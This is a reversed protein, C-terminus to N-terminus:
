TGVIDVLYQLSHRNFFLGFQHNATSVIEKSRSGDHATFGVKHCTSSTRCGTDLTQPNWCRYKCITRGSHTDVRSALSRCLCIIGCGEGNTRTQSRRPVCFQDALNTLSDTILGLLITTVHNQTRSHVQVAIRQTATVELVVALIRQHCSLNGGGIDLAYLALTSTHTGLVKGDIRLLCITCSDILSDTLTCGAFQIQTTKLNRDALTVRPGNHGTIILYITLERHTIVVQQRLNQTLIPAILTDHHGVPNTDAISQGSDILNMSAVVQHFWSLGSLYLLYDFAHLTAFEAHLINVAIHTTYQFIDDLRRAEVIIGIGVFGIELDM